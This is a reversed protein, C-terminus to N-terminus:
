EKRGTMCVWGESSKWVEINIYPKYAEQLEEVQRALIGSLILCGNAELKNVLLSALIKLPNSLINAVVVNFKKNIKTEFTQTDFFECEVQNNQANYIASNVAQTDIDVGLVELAGLKKAAIALIGSGCGYDLVCQTQHNINQELWQLCLSTTPHSGTGFALGPDLNIIIKNDQNKYDSFHWSPMIILKEGIPIPEFQSQTLRVWDQDNILEITYPPIEQIDQHLEQIFEEQSTKPDLLVVVKSNKWGIPIEYGPEGYIAVEDITDLLADEISVSLANNETCIDIFNELNNKEDLLFTIQTYTNTQKQM